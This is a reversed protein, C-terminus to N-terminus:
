EQSSQGPQRAGASEGFYFAMIGAYLTMFEATVKGVWIAQYGLIMTLMIAIVPRVFMKVKQAIGGVEIQGVSFELMEPKTEEAM